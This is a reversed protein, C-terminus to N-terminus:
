RNRKKAALWAFEEESLRMVMDAPTEMFDYGAARITQYGTLLNNVSESIDVEKQPIFFDSPLCCGITMEM